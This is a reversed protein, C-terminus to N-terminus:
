RVVVIKETQTFSKGNIQLIYWGVPLHRIDLTLDNADTINARLVVQGTASMMVAEAIEHPNGPMRVTLLSNSPNPFVFAVRDRDPSGGAGIPPTIITKPMVLFECLGIGFVGPYTAFNEQYFQNVPTTGPIFKQDPLLIRGVKLTPSDYGDDHIHYILSDPGTKIGGAYPANFSKVLTPNLVPDQLDVQYLANTTTTTRYVTYYLFNGKPSYELSYITPLTLSLGTNVTRLTNTLFQGNYNDFDITFVAPTYQQAFGMRTIGPPTGFNNYTIFGIASAGSPLLQKDPGFDFVGHYTIADKNIKYVVYRKKATSTPLLSTILWLVDVSDSPVIKMGEMVTQTSYPGPLPQPASFTQMNHNYVRYEITGIQYSTMFAGTGNTFIYFEMYASKEDSRPVPAIAVPQSSSVNAGLNLGQVPQHIHNFVSVGDTYFIINGTINNTVVAWQENGNSTTISGPNTGPLSFLPGSPLPQNGFYMVANSNGTKPRGFIWNREQYQGFLLQTSILTLILLLNKM